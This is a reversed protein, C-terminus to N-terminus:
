LLAKLDGEKELGTFKLVQGLHDFGWFSETKGEASECRFWPLGFAGNDFAADTNAMLADKATKSGVNALVDELVEQKLVGELIKGFGKDGEAKGVGGNGGVWFSQYLADLAKVLEEQPHKVHLYSMARMTALTLVPFGEPVKPAIPIKFQEAWRFREVNIWAAKNRISIPTPNECKKMLGGLFLPIYTISVNSPSFAPHHRLIYYAMYAFPSVVDVYLTIKPKAM